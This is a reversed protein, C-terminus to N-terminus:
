MRLLKPLLASSIVASWTFAIRACIPLRECGNVASSNLLIGSFHTKARPSHYQNSLFQAKETVRLGRLELAKTLDYVLRAYTERLGVAKSFGLPIGVCLGPNSGETTSKVFSPLSGQSFENDM